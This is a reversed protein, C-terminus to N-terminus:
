RDGLEYFTIGLRRLGLLSGVTLLIFISSIAAVLAIDPDYMYLQYLRVPIVVTDSTYTILPISLLQIIHMALFFWIVVTTNKFLPLFIERMQGLWTAGSIRAAEELDSHIQVINGVAIRSSVPLYVVVSGVIIIALTGYLNLPPLLKGVWLFTFLLGAGIIIGPVALPTLTLFDVVGRFRGDTRETYYATGVVLITGLTAGGLAVLLSNGFAQQINPDTLATLYNDLTLNGPELRGYWTDHISVALLVLIPFVWIVFLGGWLGVALPWRWRGLSWVHSRHRRGTFTMFAEKRATVQRYYWVLVSMVVLLLCSLAAAEGYGPPFRGNIASLIATSFVDFGNRTGLISVVAFEGLGYLFIVITASLIAPKILPFSISRVTALMSAGHIRSVEELMPDMDQLAPVTLLYFTPVVNIGAIFAIGWPSFIDVPLQEIGITSQLATTVLGSDSSYATVYMIAYVYGPIAQCSLLVLEMEGKTPLDTRVFLWAAGLGFAMGTATMGVAITLSNVVLEAIPFFDGLYVAAFNELTLEAGFEGPYGSWVSTWLLFVLPVVMLLAVVLIIGGLVLRKSLERSDWSAGLRDPLSGLLDAVAEVPSRKSSM